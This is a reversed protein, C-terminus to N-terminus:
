EMNKKGFDVLVSRKEEGPRVPTMDVNIWPTAGEPVDDCISFPPPPNRMFKSGGPMYPFCYPDPHTYEVLKEQGAIVLNAAESCRLALDHSSKGVSHM